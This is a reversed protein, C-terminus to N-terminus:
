IGAIYGGAKEGGEGEQDECAAAGAPRTVNPVVVVFFRGLGVVGEALKEADASQLGFKFHGLPHFGEPDAEKVDYVSLDGGALPEGAVAKM